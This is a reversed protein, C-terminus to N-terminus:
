NDVRLLVIVVSAYFFFLNYRYLVSLVWHSVELVCQGGTCLRGFGRSNFGVGLESNGLGTPVYRITTKRM